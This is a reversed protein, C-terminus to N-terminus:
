YKGEVYDECRRNSIKKLGLLDVCNNHKPNCLGKTLVDAPMETSVHDLILAGSEMVQQVFHHRVDIHKTRAHFMNNSALM